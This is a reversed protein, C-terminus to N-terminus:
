LGRAQGPLYIFDMGDTSVLGASVAQSGYLYFPVLEPLVFVDSGGPEFTKAYVGNNAGAKQWQKTFASFYLCNVTTNGSISNDLAVSLVCLESGTIGHAVSPDTLNTPAATPLAVGGPTQQNQGLFRHTTNSVKDATRTAM